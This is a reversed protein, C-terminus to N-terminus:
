EWDIPNDHAGLAFDMLRPLIRRRNRKDFCRVGIQGGNADYIVGQRAVDPRVQDYKGVRQPGSPQM